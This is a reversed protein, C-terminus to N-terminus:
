NSPYPLYNMKVNKRFTKMTNELKLEMAKENFIKSGVATVTSAGIDTKFIPLHFRRKRPETIMESVEHRHNFFNKFVKPLNDHVYSHTFSLIEQQVMDKVKLISLENHLKNTSYRYNKHSLVKLLKNHLTQLKNINEDSTLGTVISGYKLRSYIMSYFITKIHEMDLYQQINYFLPFFSKLKTCIENTHKDWCMHEDITLGLYKVQTERHIKIDQYSITDPIEINSMRKPKFIVYSTKSINLTLKNAKFWESVKKIIEEAKTVLSDITDSHCFIGTDDAFIRFLGEKCSNAIDNIYIIFLLPGLVSGQPVGCNISKLNSKANNVKVFQQRNSLYSKFLNHINGRIGYNHMKQLLINHDVTDFAKTLDIFIGCTLEKKDIAFKIRDTIDVLAQTTSHGKRFGFQYEYLINFKTLYKYLRNHLIREFIKNVTSLVSIPRYNGPDDRSGKKFIPTVRAIKLHDPYVGTSISANFIYTLPEAVHPACLQLFRASLEDSGSSKRNNLNGLIKSIENPNTKHLYMSHISNEGMFKRFENENTNQFKSALETGINTFFDNLGNAIQVPDNIIRNDIRLRNIKTVKNRKCIMNGLTKWLGICNNNHQKILNQYHKRQAEKIVNNLINRYRKWKQVNEPTGNKIQIHYLSNRHKISTKIGETIWEKDKAKKRSQRVRPFYIELLSHLKDYLLKYLDNVNLSAHPNTSEKLIETIGSLESAINNKFLETNEKTYLRIFPRDQIKNVEMDIIAFNCLHDSIDTMFNGSTVLNNVKSKPLRIFIHDILTMSRDTFRTPITIFPILNYSLMTDLYTQTTTINPKLLDINFDGGILLMNNTNFKKLCNNLSENFHTLNGSPHRYISGVTLVINNSKLDVFVSEVECNSCNCNLKVKSENIVIEDFKDDRILIGAGGKKSTSKNYCLSYNDFVEEILKENINGIETLLILDFNCNLCSLFAKLEHCHKNVSRINLHFTKLSNKKHKSIMSNFKQENYYRCSYNERSLGEILEYCQSVFANNEFLELIKDKNTICQTLFAYDTCTSFPFSQAIMRCTIRKTGVRRSLVPLIDKLEDDSCDYFPSNDYMNM